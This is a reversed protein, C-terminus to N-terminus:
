TPTDAPQASLARERQEITQLRMAVATQYKVGLYKAIADLHPGREPIARGIEWSHWTSSVVGAAAAAARITQRKTCRKATLADAITPTPKSM